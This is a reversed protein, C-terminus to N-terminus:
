ILFLSISVGVVTRIWIFEFNTCVLKINNKLKERPGYKLNENETIKPPNSIRFRHMLFVWFQLIEYSLAQFMHKESESPQRFRTKLLESSLSEFCKQGNWFINIKFSKLNFKTNKLFIHTIWWPLLLFGHM